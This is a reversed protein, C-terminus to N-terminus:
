FTRGVGHVVFGKNMPLEVVVIDIIVWWFVFINSGFVMKTYCKSIILYYSVDHNYM